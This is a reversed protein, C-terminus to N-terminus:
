RSDSESRTMSGDRARRAGRQERCQGIDRESMAPASAHRHMDIVQRAQMSRMRLKQIATPQWPRPMPHCVAIPASSARM